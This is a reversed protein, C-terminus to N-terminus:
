LRGVSSPVVAVTCFPDTSTRSLFPLLRDIGGEATGEAEVEIAAVYRADHAERRDVVDVIRSDDPLYRRLAVVGALEEAAGAITLMSVSARCPSRHASPTSQSVAISAM